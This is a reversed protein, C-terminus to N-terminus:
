ENETNSHYWMDEIKIRVKRKGFGGVDLAGVCTLTGGSARVADEEDAFFRIMELGGGTEMPLSFKIHTAVKGFTAVNQPRIREFRFLPKPNGQGFPALTRLAHYLNWSINDPVLAHTELEEKEEEVELSEYAENLRDSLTHVEEHRISFGGSHRHGGHASFVDGVKEMLKNLAIIGGSRASGKITDAEGKGWLFVPKKEEDAIKGAALGLLGPQWHPNGFVLVAMEKGSARLRKKIEKIMQAVVGKRKTNISDLHRVREPAEATTAILTQFADEPSDMRSAANIRPTISFVIDDETLFRQFVGAKRFLEKLGPRQTKQLVILGYHAFTRNEGVLPVMDSLTAIGVMDLLWKEWGKKLGYEGKQILAQVLKFAVAAGCLDKFPYSNGKTNPNIIAVALPVDEGSLHHDTIIVDMGLEHAYSVAQIARIGCDITIVLTVNKESLKKLAEPHVGFGETNRHPIYVEINDYGIKAFFDYLVVAGPIGDADFDSYLAIKEGDKMAREIREVAVEMDSLLFPDYTDREWDPSLFAERSDDTVGREKLLKEILQEIQNTGM